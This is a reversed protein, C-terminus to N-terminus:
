ELDHRGVLLEREAAIIKVNPTGQVVVPGSDVGAYNVRVAESPHLLYSGRFVGGITVTVTTDVTDVNGFRLQEDLTVNNYAPFVYTDSVQGAPLGMLQAYSSWTKGDWWSNREAAIIKVNPTGQVVVPGSDLGAYNVRVAQSPHLLYSGRFIGGITVTVTTDVTDVNGFRLQEDLTVNNYAPFVYTDSVQGAPLGMVQAYDSWTKGDWWSDREAAIIKTGNTSNVVVPGSDVGAYNHREAQGSAITYTGMLAGNIHVEVPGGAGITFNGASAGTLSNYNTTDTPTFDATIAFTGPGVPVTSSGDYLVNSVAGAVSGSSVVAAQPSGNYIVPSNTVSLTPTVKNIIFSGASAGTLSNYNTTDTPAFDATIAYTDANTPVTSSGNYKVSSAVGAVSGSVDAAQPSGNYVVPSNTVSLTPTAKGINATTTPQTLTYNGIASGTVALGSIQVTKGIGANGDPTFAGSAGSTNLVVNGGDLNGVLAASGKHIVASTTTDYTKNDATIGTVTLEKATINATATPQTLTYNGIASGTVHLGSIQVTKGNGANGNPTFAGTAGSTDLVVNGGDLNGVLVASGVHIVASATADYTKNDATIGTVTLEKAIINATTTPQTLTYNGIASGTVALGSIQVTKGTGVNGNPTFAGSAGSKDLVVNGGDLNGVLVASGVHIVASATTDYTKNDATIGTVTLEKATINATTSASSNVSYNSAATGTLSLGTASVPKGNGINKTDFTATGGAYHVDDSGFVGTLTRTAITAATTADYIKNNATINGTLAFPTIDATATPQTLTYNGSASGSITLGSIQVTKGNGVSGDPTFAGAASGTNLVVNGGDLNGVLAAGATNITAATTADYTRNSATVGTVTLAKQTINATTTPQTLTYNGSASGSITLGSIQVTKGNGVNGNPTFAGAVVDTVLLVNGGDLNGVLAAGATNIAAATTADYTRNSATVGTVTLAKQTINATTTPQTLTYNGSASGSITLGSIQVTKGNGVSGDPTFAGAASGTNLVVNGGDLNGVLAAGATNITAATTADYTRNSATVGTVTLAKQTINATTTPQTLTYNGSASGSITLGSIQVTKGNGVNGNPTFAGAASGTNLVVNGGDLNGVLAAGATNITAATTADYTRNSATVGTVTLAKQTINATTTPQTLTYNGSASGSITLGSIQVTKGNGVSGDPTFAGAASGTNLVVNGGDLNGVLAAGATNITAATTADYTRNSATVGTVTLTAKNIVGTTDNAATISYSSTVNTIGRMIVASPILTKGTGWTASQYVETYTAADGSALTGSTLTPMAVASTTADYTKTNTVATVTIPRSTVTLSATGSSAAYIGGGGAFSAGVGSPYTTANIGSLSAGSVTAIGSSNTVGSGAPLGNLTFTITRGSLAPSLTASLNATGGYIGTAEDVTLTTPITYTVEVSIYDVGATRNNTSSSNTASLAVGFNTANIEAPTWTTGWLDAPGGYTAAANAAGFAPWNDITNAKNDGAVAGTKLLSVVSDRIVYIPPAGGTGTSYRGITVTIGNITAAPPISFGYQTGELYHTIAGPTVDLATAYNGDDLLINGPNTWAFTGVDSVDSGSGPYRTNYTVTVTVYDVNATLSSANSNNVALAVGFNTANIEAPTWTTGWLNTPTGYTAVGESTPWDSLTFAKNTGVVSGGKLLSVVSDRIYPASAGSSFRGIAVKIGNITADAPIAFGFSTAELYHSTEGNNLAVTAYVNDDSVANGPNSWDVTGVGTANAGTGPYNPGASAALAASVPLAALLLATIMVAITQTSLHRAAALPRANMEEEKPNRIKCSGTKHLAVMLGALVKFLTSSLTKM